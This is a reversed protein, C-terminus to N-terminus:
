QKSVRARRCWLRRRRRRSVLSARACTEGEGEAEM